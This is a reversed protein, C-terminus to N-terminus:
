RIRAQIFSELQRARQERDAPQQCFAIEGLARFRAIEEDEMLQSRDESCHRVIWFFLTYGRGRLKEMFAVVDRTPCAAIILYPKEEPTLSNIFDKWEATLDDNSMRRIFVWKAAIKKWRVHTNGRTLSRLTHSKGWGARGVVFFAQAM